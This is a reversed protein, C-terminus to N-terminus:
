PEGKSAQLAYVWIPKDWMMQRLILRKTEFIIMNLVLSIVAFQCSFAPV